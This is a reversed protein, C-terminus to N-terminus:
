NKGNIQYIDCFNIKLKDNFIILKNINDIKKVIGKHKIYKGGSKKIDTVFYIVEVDLNKKINKAIYSLRLNIINKENDSLEIKRNTIREKEYIADDYGELASFPSFQAARDAMSMAKRKRLIPRDKKIIDSYSDM